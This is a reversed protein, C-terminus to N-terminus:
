AISETEVEQKSAMQSDRLCNPHFNPNRKLKTDPATYNKVISEFEENYDHLSPPYYRKSHAEDHQSREEAYTTAFQPPLMTCESLKRATDERPLSKELAAIHEALTNRRENWEKRAEIEAQTLTLQDASLDFDTSFLPCSWSLDHIEQKLTAIEIEIEDDQFFQRSLESIPAAIGGEPGTIAYPHHDFRTLSYHSLFKDRLSNWKELAFRM